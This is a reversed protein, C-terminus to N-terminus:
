PFISIITNEKEENTYDEFSGIFGRLILRSTDTKNFDVVRGYDRIIIAEVLKTYYFLKESLMDDLTPTIFLSITEFNDIYIPSYSLNVFYKRIDENIEGFGIDSLAKFLKDDNYLLKTIDKNTNKPNTPLSVIVNIEEPIMWKILYGIHESLNEM